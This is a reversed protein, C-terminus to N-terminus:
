IKGYLKMKKKNKKFIWLNYKINSLLKDCRENSYKLHAKFSNIRMNIYEEDIISKNKLKKITKIHKRM